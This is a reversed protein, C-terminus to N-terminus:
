DDMAMFGSIAGWYDKMEVGSGRMLSSQSSGSMKREQAKM